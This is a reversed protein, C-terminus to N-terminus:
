RRRRPAPHPLLRSRVTAPKLAVALATPRVCFLYRDVPDPGRPAGPYTLTLEYTGPLWSGGSVPAVLVLGERAEAAVAVAVSFRRGTRSVVALEVQPAVLHDHGLALLRQASAIAPGLCGVPPQIAGGRAPIPPPRPEVLRFGVGPLV